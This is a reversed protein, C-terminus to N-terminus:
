GWIAKMIRPYVEDIIDTLRILLEFCEAGANEAGLVADSSCTVENDKDLYFKAWRYENNLANLLAYMTPIKGEAVKAISFSKINVSGGDKDFFFFSAISEANNGSFSVKVAENREETAEFYTYKVDKSELYAKFLDAVKSM